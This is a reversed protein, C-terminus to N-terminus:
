VQAPRLRRGTGVRGDYYARRVDETELLAESPPDLPPVPEGRLVQAYRPGLVEWTYCARWHAHGAAGLARAADTTELLFDIGEGFLALPLILGGAHDHASGCTPTAIWPLSHSMAELLVLPTADALSPLLLLQARAMAAAVTEPSAAGLISVRPDDAALSRVEEAIHPLSPSVDGILALHWDGPHERLVRLLGAHNKEPWMNGVHLLLPVDGPIGSLAPSAPASPLREVANPVYVGSFGLDECLRVDAGGHSSYGIVDATGLLGAYAQMARADARLLGSNEANICPVVVVRPRPTPLSLSAIVPWTTPASLALIAEHRGDAVIAQLAGLPDGDIEHIVMGRYERSARHELRRTAVEVTFGQSQLAVGAAEALRESGGVSPYFWDVALLIRDVAHRGGAQRANAASCRSVRRDIVELESSVDEGLARARRLATAADTFRRRGSLLSALQRWRAGQTPEADAARRAWHTAQVLDDAGACWTALNELAPVYHPDIGLAELLFSEVDEPRGQAVAVVALDNLAQVRQEAGADALEVCETLLREAAVLDGAAFLQEAQELRGGPDPPGGAPASPSVTDRESAYAGAFRELLARTAVNLPDLLSARACCRLRERADSEALARALEADALARESGTVAVVQPLTMPVERSLAHARSHLDLAARALTEASVVQSLEGTLMLRRITLERILERVLREGGVGFSMNSAHLRYNSLPREIVEVEGAAAAHMVLWYDAYPSCAPIPVLHRSRLMLTSNTTFNVAVLQDLV